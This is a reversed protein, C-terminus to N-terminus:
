RPSSESGSLPQAQALTRIFAITADFTAAAGTLAFDRVVAVHEMGEIELLTAPIGQAVLAAHFRRSDGSLVEGTGTSLFSPPFGVPASSLPSALPDGADQGQLYLAAAEQAAARSFLPDSAANREFCADSVGLDLWASHLILGALPVGHRVCLLAAAAAIGGGASDGALILPRGTSRFLDIVTLADNLGCPFPHEPALRYAPCIVEVGAAAALRAAYGAVQEPFGQRFGGGHFHVLLPAHPAPAPFRLARVGGLMQEVPAPEVRWFGALRAQEMAARREALAPPCGHGEREPLRADLLGGNM